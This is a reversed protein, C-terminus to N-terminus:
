HHYHLYKHNYVYLFKICTHTQTHTHTHTLTLNKIHIYIYINVDLVQGKILPVSFKFIDTNKIFGQVKVCSYCMQLTYYVIVPDQSQSLLNLFSVWQHTESIRLWQQNSWLITIHCNHHSVQYEQLWNLLHRQYQLLNCFYPSLNNVM